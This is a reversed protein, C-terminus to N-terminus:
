DKQKLPNGIAYAGDGLMAQVALAIAWFVPYEWGGGTNSFTFGNGAHPVIAGIMIPLAALAAWRTMFGLILALGLGIEGAMVPYALIGPFGISEFFDATGAPTFVLLKILGHTLLLAGSTVRLLAIGQSTSATQTM